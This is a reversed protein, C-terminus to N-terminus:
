EIVKALEKGELICINFAKCMYDFIKDFAKWNREEDFITIRRHKGGRKKIFIRTIVPNVENVVTISKTHTYIKFSNVAYSVVVVM